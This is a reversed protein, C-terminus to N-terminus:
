YIKHREKLEKIENLVHIIELSYNTKKCQLSLSCSLTYIKVHIYSKFDIDNSTFFGLLQIFILEFLSHIENYLTKNNLACHRLQTMLYMCTDVWLKIQNHLSFKYQTFLSIIQLKIFLFNSLISKKKLEMFM